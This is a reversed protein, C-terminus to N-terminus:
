KIKGNERLLDEVVQTCDYIMEDCHPKKERGLEKNIKLLEACILTDHHKEKIRRAFEKAISPDTLGFFGLAILGGSFAGCVSAMRMGGGFNAAINCALEESIGADEAFSVAVAQACNYNAADITRCKKAKDLYKSM